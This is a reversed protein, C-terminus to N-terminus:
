KMSSILSCNFTGLGQSLQLVSRTPTINHETGPVGRKITRSFIYHSLFYTQLTYTLVTSFILVRDKEKYRTLNMLILRVVITAAIVRSKTVLFTVFRWRAFVYKYYHFQNSEAYHIPTLTSPENLIENNTPLPKVSFMISTESLLM